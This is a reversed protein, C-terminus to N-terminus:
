KFGIPHPRLVAELCM